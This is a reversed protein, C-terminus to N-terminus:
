MPFGDDDVIEEFRVSNEFVINFNKDFLFIKKNTKGIDFVAIIEKM